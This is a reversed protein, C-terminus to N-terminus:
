QKRLHNFKLWFCGDRSNSCIQNWGRDTEGFQLNVILLTNLVNLRKSDFKVNLIHEVLGRKESKDPLSRQKWRGDAVVTEDDATFKQNIRGM